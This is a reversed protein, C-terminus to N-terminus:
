SLVPEYDKLAQMVDIEGTMLKPLLTDRTKTLTDIEKSNAKIKQFADNAFSHFTKMDEKSWKPSPFSNLMETPVRQRGSTGVMSRMAYERFAKDRALCYVFYPSIKEKARMVIFETSGWGIENEELLDVFGTKGNELCPTIRALLTDDNQFKSGSKFERPVAKEISASSESLDKMEVYSCNSGKKLALKPNLEIIESLPILDETESYKYFLTQAMQELTQNIRRNLEIKDDLASLIEAIRIQIPLNPLILELKDFVDKPVRQRGSTGVLNLEAYRRVEDWRSLYFIFNIDSINPKERFVFFETSGFGIDGKLGKVQCIKGNELCPTIRAFLVDQERFRAGGGLVREQSPFVFRQGENLDKMEIFSYSVKAKLPVTPNIKLFESFIFKKWNAM